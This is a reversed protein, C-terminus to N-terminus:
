DPDIVARLRAIAPDIGVLFIKAADLAKAAKDANLRDYLHMAVHRFRRLEDAADLLQKDLIAPRSGELARGARRLMAAHWDSGVPLPEDLMAFIRKLAAEFATYGSQMAHMFAAIPVYDATEVDRFDCRPFILLAQTLHHQSSALDQEIDSWLAAMM